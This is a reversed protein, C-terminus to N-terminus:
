RSIFQITEIEQMPTDTNQEEAADWSLRFRGRRAAFAWWANLLTWM